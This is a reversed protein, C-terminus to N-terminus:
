QQSYILMHYCVSNTKTSILIYLILEYLCESPLNRSGGFPEIVGIRSLRIVNTSGTFYCQLVENKHIFPKPMPSSYDINQTIGRYIVLGKTVRWLLSM